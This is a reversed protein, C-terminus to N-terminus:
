QAMLVCSCARQMGCEDGATLHSCPQQALLDPHTHAHHSCPALDPPPVKILRELDAWSHGQALAARVAHIAADVADANIEIVQAQAHGSGGTCKGPKSAAEMRAALIM